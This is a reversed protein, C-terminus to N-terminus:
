TNQGRSVSVRTARRRWVVFAIVLVVWVLWNRRPFYTLNFAAVLPGAKLSSLLMIRTQRARAGMRCTGCWSQYPYKVAQMMRWYYEMPYNLRDRWCLATVGAARNRYNRYASMIYPTPDRDNVASDFIVSLVRTARAPCGAERLMFGRNFVARGWPETGPFRDAVVGYLEAARASMGEEAEIGALAGLAKSHTEASAARAALRASATYLLRATHTDQQPCSYGYLGALSLLTEARTSDDAAKEWVQWYFDVNAPRFWTGYGLRTLVDALGLMEEANSPDQRLGELRACVEKVQNPYIGKTDQLLASAEEYRAQSIRILAEAYLAARSWTRASYGKRKPLERLKPIFSEDCYGFQVATLSPRKEWLQGALSESVRKYYQPWNRPSEKVPKKLEMPDGGALLGKIARHWLEIAERHTRKLREVQRLTEEVDAADPEVLSATLERDTGSLGEGAEDDPLLLGIGALLLALGQWAALALLVRRTTLADIWRTNV